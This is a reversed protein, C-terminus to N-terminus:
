AARREMVANSSRRPLVGAKLKAGLYAAAERRASEPEWYRTVTMCRAGHQTSILRQPIRRLAPGVGAHRRTPAFGTSYRSALTAVVGVSSRFLSAVERTSLWTRRIEAEEEERDGLRAIYEDVWWKPALRVHPYVPSRKMVDDKIAAAVIHRHALRTENASLERFHADVLPVLDDRRGPELYLGLKNARASIAHRTRPRGRQALVRGVDAAGFSRYRLRLLKEDEPLWPTNWPM